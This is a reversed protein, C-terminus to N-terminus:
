TCLSDPSPFPLESWNRAQSIGHVSSGPLSCEMPDCLTPCLKIVLCCVYLSNPENTSEINYNSLLGFPKILMTVCLFLLLAYQIIELYIVFIEEGECLILM